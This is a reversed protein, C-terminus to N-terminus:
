EEVEVTIKLRMNNLDVLAKAQEKDQETGAFTVFYGDGGFRLAAATQHIIVSLVIPEKM